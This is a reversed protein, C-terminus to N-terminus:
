GAPRPHGGARFWMAQADEQQEGVTVLDLVGDGDFDVPIARHFFRTDGAPVIDHREWGDDTQELWFLAGCPGIRPAFECVFFGVPVILDVDGDGDLDEATIDNPFYLGENEDLIVDRHWTLTDDTVLGDGERWYISLAGPPFETPGVDDPREGFESVVLVLRGDGDIDVPLAGAPGNAAPTVEVTTFSPPAAPTSATSPTTSEDDGDTCGAAMVLLAAVV